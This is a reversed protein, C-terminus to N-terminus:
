NPTITLLAYVGALILVFAVRDAIERAPSM